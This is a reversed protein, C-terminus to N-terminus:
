PGGFVPQTSPRASGSLHGGFQMASPAMGVNSPRDAPWPRVLILALMCSAILVADAGPMVQLKWTNDDGERQRRASTSLARGGNGVVRGDPVTATMQLDGVRGAEIFMVAQGGCILVAGGDGRPEMTGYLVSRRGHIQLARDPGGGPALAGQPATVFVRPNDECGVSSLALRKGGNGEPTIALHMLKRGSTGIIDIQSSAVSQLASMAVMFRAETRPLILSPCIPPPLGALSATAGATPPLGLPQEGPGPAAGSPVGLGSSTGAAVAPPGGFPRGTSPRGFSSGADGYAPQGQMQPPAAGGRGQIPPQPKRFQGAYGGQQSNRPDNLQHLLEQANRQRPRTVFYGIVALMVALLLVLIILVPSAGEGSAVGLKAKGASAAVATAATAATSGRSVYQLSHLAARSREDESPHVSATRSTEADEFAAVRVHGEAPAAVVIPASSSADALSLSTHAGRAPRQGARAQAKSQPATASDALQSSVPQAAAAAVTAPQVATQVAPPAAPAAAKKEAPQGAPQAALMAAPEASDQSTADATAAATASASSAPHRKETVLNASAEGNSTTVSTLISSDLQLFWASVESDVDDGPDSIDVAECSASSKAVVLTDEQTGALEAAPSVGLAPHSAVALVILLGFSIVHM